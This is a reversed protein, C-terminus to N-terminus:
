GVPTPAIFEFLQVVKQVGGSRRSVETAQHAEEQTVLGMLYVVGNETIIKIRTMDIKGTTLLKSKIKSTIYSDSSRTLYSSAGSVNLENHIRKVRAVSNVIDQARQKAQHNPVQGTILVVNNYSVVNVNGIDGPEGTKSLKRSSKLEISQDEIFAGMTRRDHAVALAGAGAVTGVAVATVLVCGQALLSSIIIGILLYLRTKAILKNQM